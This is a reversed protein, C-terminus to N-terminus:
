QGAAGKAKSFVGGVIGQLVTAGLIIGILLTWWHISV